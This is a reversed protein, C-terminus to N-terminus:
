PALNNGGKPPASGPSKSGAHLSARMSDPDRVQDTSGAMPDNVGGIGKVKAGPRRHRLTSFLIWFLVALVAAFTFMSLVLKWDMVAGEIFARYRTLRLSGAHNRTPRLHEYTSRCVSRGILRM